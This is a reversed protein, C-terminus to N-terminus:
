PPDPLLDVEDDEQRNARAHQSPHRVLSPDVSNTNRLLAPLPPYLIVERMYGLIDENGTYFATFLHNWTPIIDSYDVVPLGLDYIPNRRNIRSKVNRYRKSSTRGLSSTSEEKESNKRPRKKKQTNQTDITTKQPNINEQTKAEKSSIKINTNTDDIVTITTPNISKITTSKSTNDNKEFFKNKSKKKEELFEINLEDISGRNDDGKVEKKEQILDVNFDNKSDEEGKVNKIRTKSERAKKKRKQIEEVEKMMEAIEKKRQDELDSLAQLEQDIEKGEMAVQKYMDNVINEIKSSESKKIFGTEEIKISEKSDIQISLSGHDIERDELGIISQNKDKFDRSDEKTTSQHQSELSADIEIIKTTTPTSPSVNKSNQTLDIYYTKDIRTRADPSLINSLIIVESKSTNKTTTTNILHPNTEEGGCDQGLISSNSTTTEERATNQTSDRVNKVKGKKKDPLLSMRKKKARKKLEQDYYDDGFNAVKKKKRNKRKKPVFGGYVDFPSGRELDIINTSARSRKRIKKEEVIPTENEVGGIISEKNNVGGKVEVEDLNGEGYINKAKQAQGRVPSKEIKSILSNQGQIKTGQLTKKVFQRWDQQKKKKKIFKRNGLPNLTRVM